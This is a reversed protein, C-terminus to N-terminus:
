SRGGLEALLARLRENELGMAEKAQREQEKAQREQEKAQREQKARELAAEKAQREQEKAQREQEKAQREQKARELAVWKAQREQEARQEAAERGQREQERAQQEQEARQEAVEARQEAAQRGQREREEAQQKREEGTLVLRGDPHFLRLWRDQKGQYVGDWIGVEAQLQGSWLRDEPSRPIPQYTHDLLRFGEPREARPEYLFYEASKFVDRYLRKKKGYDDQATSPSLLELVLDPLRDDEEWSIWADRDGDPVDKVLFFDPGRFAKKKPRKARLGQDFLEMQREEEAVERAQDKSYYVFQNAGVYFDGGLQELRIRAVEWFLMMSLLHIRKEVPEGDEVVVDFDLDELAVSVSM